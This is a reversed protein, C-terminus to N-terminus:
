SEGAGRSLGFREMLDYLTPRSVGLLEAARSMNNDAIAMAQLVARREAEARVERLNLVAHVSTAADLSLDNATILPDDAVLVATRVRAELERVNGPWSYAVIADLADQTFGRKPKGFEACFRRLFVHSLTTADGSRERLPPLMIPAEAIRYYLDERFRQEAILRKLEQNTACVVRVDVPIEQRGGVREIVRTQLFRLLKAQLTLPMDGIEDLFLTGGNASEIKGPTTKVAGTFAGKEHGFLESELLQEPIAACNIAIFPREKRPSLTHVARAVLEKGTGSEGLILVSVAAPAVKEVLRCARLMVADTSVIGTLPTSAHVSALERNQRELDHLGFARDVILRLVDIELPKQCFDYAGLGIARLANDKDANGTVVIVKTHPAVSIIERLTAFGELVGSPDPPLGLDQLVVAPEHRRLLAMGQQRDTAAVVDRNEFAWALQKQLGPDDEIILLTQKDPADTM